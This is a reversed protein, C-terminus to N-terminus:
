FQLYWYLMAITNIAHDVKQNLVLLIKASTQWINFIQTQLKIM